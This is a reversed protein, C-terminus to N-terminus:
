YAAKLRKFMPFQKMNRTALELEHHEATGVIVADALETRHSARHRRQQM